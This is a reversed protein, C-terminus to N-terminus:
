SQRAVRCVPAVGYCMICSTGRWLVHRAVGCWVVGYWAVTAWSFSDRVRVCVLLSRMKTALTAPQYNQYCDNTGLHITIIDPNTAVWKARETPDDLQDIRWGPHGEHNQWSAPVYTPGTKLTGVTSM